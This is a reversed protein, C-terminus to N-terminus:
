FAYAGSNDDSECLYQCGFRGPYASLAYCTMTETTRGFIHGPNPSGGGGSNSRRGTRSVFIHELRVPSTSELDSINDRVFYVLLMPLVDFNLQDFSLLLFRRPMLEKPDGGFSLGIQRTLTRVLSLRIIRCM